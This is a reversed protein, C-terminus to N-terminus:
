IYTFLIFIDLENKSLYLEPVSLKYFKMEKVTEETKLKKRFYIHEIEHNKILTNSITESAFGRVNMAERLIYPSTFLINLVNGSSSNYLWDMYYAPALGLSHVKNERVRM